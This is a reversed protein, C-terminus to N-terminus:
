KLRSKILNRKQNGVNKSEGYNAEKRNMSGFLVHSSRVASSSKEVFLFFLNSLSLFSRNVGITFITPRILLRSPHPETRPEVRLIHSEDFNKISRQARGKLPNRTTQTRFQEILQLYRSPPSSPGSLIWKSYRMWM